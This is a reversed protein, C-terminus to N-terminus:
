ETRANLGAKRGAKYALWLSKPYPHEIPGGYFHGMSLRGYGARASNFGFKYAADTTQPPEYRALFAQRELWSTM